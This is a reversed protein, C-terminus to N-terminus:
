FNFAEEIMEGATRQLYTPHMQGLIRGVTNENEDSFASGSSGWNKGFSKYGWFLWSQKYQYAKTLAEVASGQSFETLFSPVNM